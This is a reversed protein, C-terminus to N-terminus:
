QTLEDKSDILVYNKLLRYMGPLIVEHNRLVQEIILEMFKEECHKSNLYDHIIKVILKNADEVFGPNRLLKIFLDTM